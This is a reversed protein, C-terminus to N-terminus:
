KTNKKDKSKLRKTTRTLKTEVEVSGDTKMDDQAKRKGKGNGKKADDVADDETSKVEHQLTNDEVSEGEKDKNILSSADVVPEEPPSVKESISPVPIHEKRQSSKLIDGFFYLMKEGFTRPARQVGGGTLDIDCNVCGCNNGQM